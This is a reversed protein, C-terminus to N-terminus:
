TCWCRVYRFLVFYGYSRRCKFFLMDICAGLLAHLCPSVLVDVAVYIDMDMGNHQVLFSFTGLSHGTFVIETCKTGCLEMAGTLGQLLDGGFRLDEYVLLFGGHVTMGRPLFWPQVRVAAFNHAWEDASVTGRFSVYIRDKVIAVFAFARTFNNAHFSVFEVDKELGLAAIRSCNPVLYEPMCHALAAINVGLVVDPKRPFDVVDRTDHVIDNSAVNDRTTDAREKEKLGHELSTGFPPSIAYITTTILM